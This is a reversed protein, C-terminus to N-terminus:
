LHLFWSLICRDFLKEERMQQKPPDKGGYALRASDRWHAENPTKKLAPLNKMKQKFFFWFFVDLCFFFLKIAEVKRACMACKYYWNLNVNWAKHSVLSHFFSSVFIVARQLTTPNTQHFALCETNHRRLLRQKPSTTFLGM